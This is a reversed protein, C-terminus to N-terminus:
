NGYKAELEARRAEEAPTLGGDNEQNGQPPTRDTLGLGGEGFVRKDGYRKNQADFTAQVRPAGLTDGLSLAAERNKEYYNAIRSMQADFSLGMVAALFERSNMEEHGSVATGFIRKREEADMGALAEYYNRTEQSFDSLEDKALASFDGLKSLLINKLRPGVENMKEIEGTPLANAKRTVMEASNM